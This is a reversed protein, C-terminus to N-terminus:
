SITVQGSGDAVDQGSDLLQASITYSGAPVYGVLFTNSATVQGGLIPITTFWDTASKSACYNGPNLCVTMKFSATLQFGTFGATWAAWDLITSQGATSGSVGSIGFVTGVVVGIQYSNV